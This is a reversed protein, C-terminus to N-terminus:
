ATPSTYGALAYTHQGVRVRDQNTAREVVSFGTRDGDGNVVDPGHAGVGVVVAVHQATDNATDLGYVAVDGPVPVYGSGAPHWHGNNSGWVYFSASAANIDGPALAYTFPVGAQHWAWAAFDACWEENMLGPGCSLSGADWYSSFKNCYTDPPDTTYGVQSEAAAVIAAREPSLTSGGARHVFYFVAGALVVLGLFVRRRRRPARRVPAPDRRPPRGRNDIRTTPSVAPLWPLRPRQARQPM